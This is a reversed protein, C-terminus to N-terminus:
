GMYSDDWTVAHPLAFMATPMWRMTEKACDRVYQLSPEDEITPMREGGIVRDIEAQARKQVEPFAVMALVFAYLTSATTDSGAELLSGATYAALRDSFNREGEGEQVKAMNAGFSPRATDSKVSAKCNLWHRLYLDGQVQYITRARRKVSALQEPLRRLVPFCDFLAATPSQTIQFFKDAESYLDHVDQHDYVPTRWGYVMSTTFSTTYRRIHELFRDPTDLMDNIMQKNELVQYPLYSKAATINLLTHCMKRILRWTPGYRLLLMRNGGSCITQGVYLEQRDSYINSKKDILDKVAEASNLVIMTTTGLM